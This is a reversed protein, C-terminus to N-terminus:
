PLSDVNTCKRMFIKAHGNAVFVMINNETKKEQHLIECHFAYITFMCKSLKSVQMYKDGLSGDLYLAHCRGLLNGLAWARGM